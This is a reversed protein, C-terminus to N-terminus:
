TVYTHDIIKVNPLPLIYKGGAALYRKHKQLIDSLFTWAFVVVYDPPNKGYLVSSSVIPIHNGPTFAGIKAPSDDIICLLDKQTLNCYNMIITAKGSAGYGVVTKKNRQIKALITQLQSRKKAVRAAFQKYTRINTFGLAKEKKRLHIVTMDQKAAATHQVYFRLSKGHTPIPEVHTITLNYSALFPELATLSYYSHHEHYVTDYQEEELLMGLYQIEFIFVGKPGLLYRIGQAVDDMDDIHAFSNASIICDAKGRTKVITKALALSFYTNLLPFTRQSHQRGINKAPDIGLVRFGQKKLPKLLVGDNCGIEVIFPHTPKTIKQKLELAFNSFHTVLSPITSSFYFYHSFLLDRNVVTNCQVLFCSPCVCLQLPYVQENQFDSATAKKTFFGGALPM